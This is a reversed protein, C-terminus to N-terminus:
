RMEDLRAALAEAVACVAEAEIRLRRLDEDEDFMAARLMRGALADWSTLVDHGSLRDSPSLAGRPLWVARQEGTRLWDAAGPPLDFWCVTRKTATV